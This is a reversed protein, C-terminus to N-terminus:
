LKVFVFASRLRHGGETGAHDLSDSMLGQLVLLLLVVLTPVFLTTAKKTKKIILIDTDVTADGIFAVVSNAGLKLAQM